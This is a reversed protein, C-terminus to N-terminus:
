LPVSLRQLLEGLRRNREQDVVRATQEASNEKVLAHFAQSWDSLFEQDFGEPQAIEDFADSAAKRQFIPAQARGRRRPHSNSQPDAYGLWMMYDGLLSAAALAAKSVRHAPEPEDAILTEIERALKQELDLRAAGSILEDVLQLLNARPMQLIQCIREAQAFLRASAVWHAMAVAAFAQAASAADLPAQSAAANLTRPTVRQADARALVDQYEADSLQLARVLHGLRREEACRRLRRTVAIAAVLRRDQQWADDDAVHYRQLRDTLSRGVVSLDHRVHRQKIRADCVEGISQALYAIGGDNLEFAENWMTTPDAVHRRVIASGLFESRAQDIREKQEPKLGQERGDSAYNLLHKSKVNPNRVFHVNDFARTTSWERPWSHHRGFGDILTAEIRRGWDIKREREKGRRQPEAFEKDLKTFCVFLGNAHAERATADAGHSKEVWAGVLGGLEGVKTTGPEICAVM